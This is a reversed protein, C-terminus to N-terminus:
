LEADATVVVNIAYTDGAAASTIEFRAGQPTQVAVLPTVALNSLGQNSGLTVSPPAARMQVPWYIPTNSWQAAATAPFRANAYTFCHYRQCDLLEALYSKWEFTTCYAGVELQPRSLKIVAGSTAAWNTLGSVLSVAGQGAAPGQVWANKTATSYTGTNLAGYFIQWGNLNDRGITVGAPPKPINPMTVLTPTNAAVTFTSVYAFTGTGDRLAVAFTGAISSQWLFQHSLPQGVFDYCNVGEIYHSFPSLLNTSTYGNAASVSNVTVAAAPYTVGNYIITDSAITVTGGASNFVKFRDPGGYGSALTGAASSAFTQPGRHSVLMNAGLIRNRGPVGILQAQLTTLATNASAASGSASSASAAAAGASDSANQAASAASQASSAAQGANTGSTTAYGSADSAKQTATTASAAANQASTGASTASAAAAGASAAAQGASQASDTAHQASDAASNASEGSSIIDSLTASSPRIGVVTMRINALTLDSTAPALVEFIDGKLFSVLTQSSANGVSQGAAFTVTAFQQGNKTLSFVTDATAATDASAVTDIMGQEFVFASPAEFSYLKENPLAAGTIWIPFQYSGNILNGTPTGWTKLTNNWTYMDGNTANIYQDGPGTGPTLPKGVGVSWKGGYLFTAPIKVTTLKGTVPDKVFGTAFTNDDAVTLPSYSDQTPM